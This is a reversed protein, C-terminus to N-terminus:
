AVKKAKEFTRFGGLGLMGTLLAMLETMDLPPPEPQGYRLSAWALLPRALFTYLLGIVCVWGVAPRWGSKFLSPDAAEVKNIDTQALALRVKADLEALAGQQQLEILKRTAEAKAVPDPILKGVLEIIPGAIVSWM